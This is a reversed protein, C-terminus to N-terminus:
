SSRRRCRQWWSRKAGDGSGMSDPTPTPPSALLQACISNWVIFDLPMALSWVVKGALVPHPAFGFFQGAGKSLGRDKLLAVGESLLHQAQWEVSNMLVTFEDFSAAVRHVGGELVDLTEVEGTQREFFLDGFVSAGIPRIPGSVLGGSKALMAVFDLRRADVFLDEWSLASM